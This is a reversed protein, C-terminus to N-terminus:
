EQWLFFYKKLIQSNRSKNLKVQRENREREISCDFSVDTWLFEKTNDMVGQIWNTFSAVDTFLQFKKTACYKDSDKQEGSVIGRVNWSRRSLDKVYFGGGSKTSCQHQMEDDFTSCFTQNESETSRREFERQCLLADIVTTEVKTPKIANDTWIVVSGVEPEFSQTPLCVPQITESFTIADMLLVVAIDADNSDKANNWDPHAYIDFVLSNVLEDDKRDSLDFKGLTCSVEHPKLREVTM